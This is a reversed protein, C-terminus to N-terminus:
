HTLFQSLPTLYYLAGRRKQHHMNKTKRQSLRECLQRCLVLLAKASITWM